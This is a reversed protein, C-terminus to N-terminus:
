DYQLNGATVLHIYRDYGRISMWSKDKSLHSMPQVLTTFVHRGVRDPHDMMNRYLDNAYSRIFFSSGDTPMSFVTEFYKLFESNPYRTSLYLEVNSTYFISVVSEHDRVFDAISGLAKDGAFDGVIPVILNKRHLDKVVDFSEKKALFNAMEGEFTTSLLLNRLNPYEAFEFGKPVEVDYKIEFQRRYFENYIVEITQLDDQSDIGYRLVLSKIKQLNQVYLTSDPLLSDYFEVIEIITPEVNSRSLEQEAPLEKKLLDFDESVPKSLLISLFDAGSDALEFIAKYILHLLLNQRRIDVVFAMDPRTEAIYTFNQEPGVGIYVGKSLGLGRLTEVPHLYSSENSTYNDSHFPGDPESIRVMLASYEEDTLSDPLTSVLRNEQGVVSAPLSVLVFCQIVSVCMVSIFAKM